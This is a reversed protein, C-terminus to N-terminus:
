VPLTRLRRGLCAGALGLGVLLWTAPEPVQGGSPRIEFRASTHQFDVSMQNVDSDTFILNPDNTDLSVLASGTALAVFNLSLFRFADLQQADLVSASNGSVAYADLVGGGLDAVDAFLPWKGAEVLDLQVDHTTPNVFSFGILSLLAPDYNIDIDFGSLSQNAGGGLASIDFSVTWASGVVGSAASSGVNVAPLAYSPEAAVSLCGLALFARSLSILTKAQKM